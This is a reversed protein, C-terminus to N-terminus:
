RPSPSSSGAGDKPTRSRSPSGTGGKPTRSSSGPSSAKTAESSVQVPSGHHRAAVVGEDGQAALSGYWGGGPGRLVYGLAVALAAGIFPGAVYAWYATFDLSALNPGFTRAPNMSAGSIPSGWMGALAIYAGVGVAGIVGISQAGSATGLIVTVLGFTLILEMLFASVDSYGAAPYTSGNRASTKVVAQLLLGAATAGLLQAVIYSPVRSWPFDGRLAFAFSVSPNLHAGSVKGFAMIVAMVMMGPAAVAAVHGVSGPIAAAMMPGGAAALVLFFTGAVEATLRRWRQKPDAFNAFVQDLDDVDGLSAVRIRARSGVPAELADAVVGAKPLDEKQGTQQEDSLVGEKWGDNRSM